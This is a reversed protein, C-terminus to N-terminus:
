CSPADNVVCADARARGRGGCDIRLNEMVRNM